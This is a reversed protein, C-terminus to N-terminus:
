PEWSVGTRLTVSLDSWNVIEFTACVPRTRSILLQQAPSETSVKVTVPSGITRGVMLLKVGAEPGTPVTIM